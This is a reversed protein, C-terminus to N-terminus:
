AMSNNIQHDYKQKCTTVVTSLETVEHSTAWKKFVTYMYM